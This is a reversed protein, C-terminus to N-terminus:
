RLVELTGNKDTLWVGEFGHPIGFGRGDHVLFMQEPHNVNRCTAYKAGRKGTLSYITGRDLPHSGDRQAVEYDRGNIRVTTM